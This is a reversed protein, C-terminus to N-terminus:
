PGLLGLHIASVGSCNALMSTFSEPLRIEKLTALFLNRPSSIVLGSVSLLSILRFSSDAIIVICFFLFLNIQNFYKCIKISAELFNQILIEM